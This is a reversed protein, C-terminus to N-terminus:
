TGWRHRLVVAMRPHQLREKDLAAVLLGAIQEPTREENEPDTLIPALAEIERKLAAM